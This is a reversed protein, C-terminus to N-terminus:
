VLALWICSSSITIATIFYMQSFFNCQSPGRGTVAGLGPVIVGRINYEAYEMKSKIFITGFCRESGSSFRCCRALNKHWLSSM